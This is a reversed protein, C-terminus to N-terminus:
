VRQMLPFNGNGSNKESNYNQPTASPPHHAEFPSPLRYITFGNKDAKHQRVAKQKWFLICSLTLDRDM